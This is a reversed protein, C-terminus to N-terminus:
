KSILIILCKISILWYFSKWNHVIAKELKRKVKSNRSKEQFELNIILSFDSAHKLILTLPGVKRYAKNDVYM